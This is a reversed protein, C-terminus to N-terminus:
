IYFTIRGATLLNTATDAQNMTIVVAGRTTALAPVGTNQHPTILIGGEHRDQTDATGTDPPARVIDTAPFM